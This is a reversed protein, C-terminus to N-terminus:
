VVMAQTVLCFLCGNGSHGPLDSLWQWLSWAFCVVMALTVLDTLSLPHAVVTNKDCLSQGLVEVYYGSTRLHQYMDRFNTHIHDGNRAVGCWVFCM